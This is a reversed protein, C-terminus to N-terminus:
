IPHGGNDTQDAQLNFKNMFATSSGDSHMCITLGDQWIGSLNWWQGPPDGQNQHIDHLGPPRGNNAPYYAGFIIVRQADVLMAELDTLAEVDTGIKWAPTVDVIRIKNNHLKFQQIANTSKILRITELKDMLWPFPPIKKWWSPLALPPPEFIFSYTKLRPDRLYDTAGSQPTSALAHYGDPLDFIQKWENPRLHVIKWLVKKPPQSDVDIATEFTGGPTGVTIHGHFYKGFNNPQDRHYGIKAGLLVGYGSIPM